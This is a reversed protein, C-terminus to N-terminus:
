LVLSIHRVQIMLVQKFVHGRGSGVRDSGIRGSEDRGSGRIAGRIGEKRSGVGVSESGGLRSSGGLRGSGNRSTMELVDNITM